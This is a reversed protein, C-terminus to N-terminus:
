LKETVPVPQQVPVEHSCKKEDVAGEHGATQDSDEGSQQVDESHVENAELDENGDRAEVPPVVVVGGSAESEAKGELAAKKKAERVDTPELGEDKVFICTLFCIAVLPVQLIFVAHSAAMYADLVAEREATSAFSTPLYFANNALYAYEAPLNSRLAAQLVAAAVALGCAGGTARFFNRVSIIVARRAKTTHAQLAVLTPQLTMGLGAGVLMLPVIIAAVSTTRKNLLM